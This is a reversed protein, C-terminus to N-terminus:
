VNKPSLIKKETNEIVDGTISSTEKITVKQKELEIERERLSFERIKLEIEKAEKFHDNEEQLIQKKRWM